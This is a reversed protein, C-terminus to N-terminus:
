FYFALGAFPGGLSEEPSNVTRYGVKLSGFQGGYHLALEYDNMKDGWVPQFDVTFNEGLRFRGRVSFANIVTRRAGVIVTQGLGVDIETQDGAMRYLFMQRKIDLKSAPSSESFAYDELYLAVPGYGGEFRNSHATIDASLRQFAFDYRVFPILPEGNKRQISADVGSSIRQMSSRGGESFLAIAVDVFGVAIDEGLENAVGNTRARDHRVEHHSEERRSDEPPSQVSKEFSHLESTDAGKQSTSHRSSNDEQAEAVGSAMGYVAVLFVAVVLPASSFGKTTIASSGIRM